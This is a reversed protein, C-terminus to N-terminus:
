LSAGPPRRSDPSHPPIPIKQLDVIAYGYLPPSLLIRRAVNRQEETWSEWEMHDAVTAHDSSLM